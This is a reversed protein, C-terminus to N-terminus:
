RKKLKPARIQDAPAPKEQPPNGATEVSGWAKQWWLPENSETTQGPESLSDGKSLPEGDEGIVQYGIEGPMVWGFRRRAQAEVYAPDEWRKKERELEAINESSQAISARLDALHQKQELFARMSSAYSVM